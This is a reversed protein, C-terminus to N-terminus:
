EGPAGRGFEGSSKSADVLGSPSARSVAGCWGAGGRAAVRCGAGVRVLGCCDAAVRALALSPGRKRGRLRPKIGPGNFPRGAAV